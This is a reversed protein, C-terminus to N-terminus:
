LINTHTHTDVQALILINWEVELTGVDILSNKPLETCDGSIFILLSPPFFFILLLPSSLSCVTCEPSRDRKNGSQEIGLVARELCQESKGCGLVGDLDELM